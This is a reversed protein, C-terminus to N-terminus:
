LMIQLNYIRRFQSATIRGERAQLCKPNVSQGRTSIELLEAEVKSMRLSAFYNNRKEQFNIQPM